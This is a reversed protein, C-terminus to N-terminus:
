AADLQKGQARHFERTPGASARVVREGAARVTTAGAEGAVPGEPLELRSRPARAPLVVCEEDGTVVFARSGGLEDKAVYRGPALDRVELEGGQPMTYQGRTVGQTDEVRIAGGVALAGDKVGM